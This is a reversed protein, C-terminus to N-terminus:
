DTLRFSNVSTAVFLERSLSEAIAIIAVIPPGAGGNGMLVFAQVYPESLMTILDNPSTRYHGRLLGMVEVTAKSSRAHLIGGQPKLLCLRSDALRGYM